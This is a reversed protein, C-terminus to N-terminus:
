VGIRVQAVPLHLDKNLHETSDARNTGGGRRRVQQHRFQVDDILLTRM